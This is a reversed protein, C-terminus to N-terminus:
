IVISQLVSFLTNCIIKHQLVDCLKHNLCRTVFCSWIEVLVGIEISYLIPMMTMSTQSGTVISQLGSYPSRFRIKHQLVDCLKYNLCQTVFCSRIEVLVGIEISYLMTIMTMSTQSGTVISQLVSIPSRFRIKHQLADCLKYNLCLVFLFNM